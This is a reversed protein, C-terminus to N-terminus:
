AVAGGEINWAQGNIGAGAASALLMVTPVIDEPTLLRRQPNFDAFRQRIDGIDGGSRDHIQAVARSLIATDVFGPCVVNVTVGKSAVELAVARTLGVLAHKSATYAATYTYGVKGATSRINIIRGTGRPLMGPLVGRMLRMPATVNLAFARDWTEDDMKVFAGSPAIGANNILVQPAFEKEAIWDLISEIGSPSELDTPVAICRGGPVVGEGRLEAAEKELAALKAANRATALVTAGAKAFALALTHGIGQSAGTIVVRLGSLAPQGPASPPTSDSM